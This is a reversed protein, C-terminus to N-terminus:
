PGATAPGPRRWLYAALITLVLAGVGYGAAVGVRAGGVSTVAHVIAYVLFAAVLLCLVAVIRLVIRM